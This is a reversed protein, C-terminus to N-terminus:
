EVKRMRETVSTRCMNKYCLVPVALVVLVLVPICILIPTVTFHWSYFFLANGISRVATASLISGLVLSTIGTLVAYLLGECGLMCRLQKGTMGVAEMMAFEQKRSLVSTVMTNIFNLIGIAALILALLGGVISYMNKDAEFEAAVTAKSTFDLDTDVNECYDALWKEVGDEKEKEVNFLTRMPLREGYFDLYEEDPLVFNYEFVSYSQLECARSLNGVAMVEYERSQGNDMHITVKDGVEFYNMRNESPGLFGFKSTIVYKGTKFKEWDLEGETLEMKEYALRGVGFIKGDINNFTNNEVSEWFGDDGFYEELYPKCKPNKLIKEHFAALEEPTFNSSDLYNMYINCVEEVGNQESLANLFKETVGELPKDYITPNDLGADRVSFDSVTSSAIFKDMDFGNVLGYVCNLLVLGLSLSTTVVVVKKKNRRMNAAAMTWPKVKKTKKGKKRDRARDQGETYRLAEVPSVSSAIRCPRICSIYVTFFSFLASAAFIWLKLSVKTDATSSFALNRMVIPLIWKGTVGGLLLGLPIGYLCLMYAQRRVIKRLQKGTTGITKLLGYRRIDHFVNIYFINYIILYGSILIVLLLAAVPLMDEIKIDMGLYAWNIGEAVAEEPFGCRKALDEMKGTLNLSSSFNFDAIIRGAYDSADIDKEMASDTPTPAIKDALEKSVLMIQSMAITDGKYFGSLTFTKEYKKDNVTFEVPVKEGVKCPIGMAKLVLDSTVIEDETKPMHGEEPYCFSFKAELDEYYGIETRLKKLSENVADGVLIRCSVEKLKKDRKVIDYEEQTLYKFGGHASGGVQRMTAEQQKEVISGGITFLSTFLLATLAIALVAIYNRSKAAKRTKDAVRRIAKQNKVKRM